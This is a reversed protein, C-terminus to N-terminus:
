KAAEQAPAAIRALHYAVVKAIAEATLEWGLSEGVRAANEGFPAVPSLLEDIAQALADADNPPVVMGCQHTALLPAAGVQDTTIVPRGLILAEVVARSFGEFLSPVVVVRALRIQRIVEYTSVRGLYETRAGSLQIRAIEKAEEWRRMFRKNYDLFDGILVFTANRKAAETKPMAKLFVMAGKNRSISGLFLVRDRMAVPQPDSEQSAESFAREVNPYVVRVKAKLDEVSHLKSAYEAIRDAVMQSNALIRTAQKFAVDLTTKHIFVPAGKEFHTPLNQVQLLMPPLKVKKRAAIGAVLGDTSESHAWLVDFPGRKRLFDRLYLADSHVKSYHYTKSAVKDSVATIINRKKDRPSVWTELKGIPYKKLKRVESSQTLVVVEHGMAAVAEALQRTPGGDDEKDLRDELWYWRCLFAIKLPRM